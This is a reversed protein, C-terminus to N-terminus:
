SEVPVFEIKLRTGTAKAYRRLTAVSPSVGGGEMRAVASQSTGLREALETQTLNAATRARILAEILTFEEDAREYERRFEPDRMLQGKLDKLTTM